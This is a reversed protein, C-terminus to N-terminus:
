SLLLSILLDALLVLLSLGLGLAHMIWSTSWDYLDLTPANPVKLDTNLHALLCAREVTPETLFFMPESTSRWRTPMCCGMWIPHASKQFSRSGSSLWESARAYARPRLQLLSCAHPFWLLNPGRSGRKKERNRLKRLDCSFRVLWKSPKRPKRKEDRLWAYETVSLPVDNVNCTINYAHCHARKSRQLRCM